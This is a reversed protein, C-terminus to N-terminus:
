LPNLTAQSSDGRCPQIPVLNGMLVLGYYQLFRIGEKNTNSLRAAFPQSRPVSVRRASGDYAQRVNAPRPDVNIILM